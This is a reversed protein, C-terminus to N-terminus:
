NLLRAEQRRCSSFGPLAAVEEPTFALDRAFLVKSDVRSTVLPTDFSTFRRGSMVLYVHESSMFVRLLRDDLDPNTIQEYDDVVVVVPEALEEVWQLGRERAAEVSSSREPSGQLRFSFDAVQKWLAPPEELDAASLHLLPFDAPLSATWQRLLKTKGYGAPASLVTLPALDVGPTGIRQVLHRREVLQRREVPQRWGVLGGPGADM